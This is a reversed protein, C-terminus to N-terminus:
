LDLVKVDAYWNKCDSVWDYQLSTEYFLEEQLAVNEADKISL